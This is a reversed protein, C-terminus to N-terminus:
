QYYIVSLSRSNDFLDPDRWFTVVEKKRRAWGSV